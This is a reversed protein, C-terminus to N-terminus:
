HLVLRIISSLGFDVLGLFLSIIFVLVIVVITSSVTQKRTPWTVKKLEIKVERFFQTIKSIKQSIKSFFSNNEIVDSFGSKKKPTTIKKVAKDRGSSADKVSSNLSEADKDSKKKVSQSTKKRQLRAM